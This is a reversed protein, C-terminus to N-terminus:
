NRTLSLYDIIVVKTKNFHLRSPVQRYTDNYNLLMDMIPITMSPLVRFVVPQPAPVMKKMTGM